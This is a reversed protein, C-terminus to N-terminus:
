GAVHRQRVPDRMVIRTQNPVALLHALADLVAQPGHPLPLLPASSSCCRSCSSPPPTPSWCPCSTRWRRAPRRAAAPPTPVPALLCSPAFGPPPLRSPLLFLSSLAISLPPARVD